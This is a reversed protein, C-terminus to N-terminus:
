AKGSATQTSLWEVLLPLGLVTNFTIGYAGSRGWRVVGQLPSLGALTVTVEGGITLEADCQASIGGQSINSITARHLLAGQRVFGFARVDVRPMRPRPGESEVKLLGLVDIKKKFEIGTDTGKVWSVEAELPQQEKLELSVLQGERLDCYPRIQAGGTSVNKVVCLHRQGDVILSGVRFLTLHREGSRRNRAPSPEEAMSYLTTRSSLEEM